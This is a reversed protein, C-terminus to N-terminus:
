AVREQRIVEDVPLEVVVAAGRPHLNFASIEGGHERAIGFCVSLGLGDGSGPAQTTYFPDFVRGPDRFGPGTDSVIMQIARGDHSMTLRIANEERDKGNAAIAQAANNLLHELMHRLRERNGRAAPANEAIQVVLKVGRTALRPECAAALERMLGCVDVMEERQVSPRWFDLLRQVTEGMRRSEDVITGADRRIRPEKATDRILEAYGMVATLPNNLAHAVGGALLGLGALKEARLLRELLEANEMARGLKAGLAELATVAEEALRRRVQTVSDACVVLAGVMREGETWLPVVIARGREGLPILHSRVGLKVGGNKGFRGERERMHSAWMDLIKLTAQDMNESAVVYLRGEADRVLMAVRSFGSRAAVTKCVRGAILQINGDRGVRADLRIYAEMEERGRRERERETECARLRRWLVWLAGVLMAVSLVSPSGAGLSWQPLLKGWVALM